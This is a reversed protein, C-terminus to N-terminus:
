PVPWASLPHNKQGFGMGWTKAYCKNDLGFDPTDCRDGCKSGNGTFLAVCRRGGQKIGCGISDRNHQGDPDKLFLFAKRFCPDVSLRAHINDVGPQVDRFMFTGHRIRIIVEELGYGIKNRGNLM